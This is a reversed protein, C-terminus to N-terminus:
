KFSSGQLAKAPIVGTAIAVGVAHTLNACNLKHRATDLYSKVSGFSINLIDSIDQYTKGRAAWILCQEERKSLKVPQSSLKLNVSAASDILVSILQLKIMNTKKFEKWDPKSHGSTYSVLSYVGRRNRVPISLGNLGVGHSLADAFFAQVPPEDRAMEDWDFPLVAKSGHSIVPDILVYQKLFYRTQWQFSYTVTGTLLSADSSKDPAFRMYAIHSVGIDVAIAKLTEELDQENYGLITDTLRIAASEITVNGM